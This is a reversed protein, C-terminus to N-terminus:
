RFANATSRTSISLTTLTPLGPPLRIGTSELPQVTEGSHKSNPLGRRSVAPDGEVYSNGGDRLFSSDQDALVVAFKELSNRGGADVASCYYYNKAKVGLKDYPM